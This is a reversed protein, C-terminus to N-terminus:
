FLRVVSGIPPPLPTAGVEVRLTFDFRSTIAKQWDKMVSSERWMPGSM